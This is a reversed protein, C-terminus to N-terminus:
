FISYSATAEHLKTVLAKLTKSEEDTIPGDTTHLDFLATNFRKHSLNLRLREKELAKLVELIANQEAMTQTIASAELNFIIDSDTKTDLYDKM